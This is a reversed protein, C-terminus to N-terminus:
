LLEKKVRLAYKSIMFVTVLLVVINESVLTIMDSLELGTQPPVLEEDGGTGYPEHFNKITFGDKMNGTISSEYEEVTM